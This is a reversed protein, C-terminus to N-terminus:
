VIGRNDYKLPKGWDGQRVRDKGMALYRFADAGDSAWNHLPEDKYVQNKEDLVKQYSRLANIGKECRVKDFWCKPLLLRVASIGDQPSSRELKIPSRRLDQMTELRTKGSGLETVGADHPVIDDGFIYPMERLVKVAAPIDSGKAEWYDLIRTQMGVQQWIWIAMSDHHGLDWATHCLVDREYPVATIRGEKEADAISRGYYSGLVSASFDCYYEQRFLATGDDFGHEARFRRLESDLQDQTFVGTEDATLLEAFWSEESRASDLLKKGHNFGRATYAFAAWGGSELLMPSLMAWARPDGISYESFVIGVPGGGVLSDFNDSGVLQWTSKNKFRILMEDELKSARMEPPFIEDIRRKGTHSNVAEWINKRAQKQQPLMHWYTGIRQQSKVAAAQMFLEDKGSRRHWCCVARLGPKDQDLYNWAKLQYGRPTWNNAPLLLEPM